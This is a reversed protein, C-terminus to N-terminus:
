APLIKDLWDKFDPGSMAPGTAKTDPDLDWTLTKLRYYDAVMADHADYMATMIPGAEPPVATEDLLREHAEIDAKMATIGSSLLATLGEVTKLKRDLAGADDGEAAAFRAMVEDVAAGLARTRVRADGVVREADDSIPEALVHALREVASAQLLLM